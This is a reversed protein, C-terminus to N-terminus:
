AEVTEGTGFKKGVMGPGPLSQFKHYSLLRQSYLREAKYTAWTISSALPPQTDTVAKIFSLMEWKQQPKSITTQRQGIEPNKKKNRQTRHSTMQLTKKIRNSPHNKSVTLRDFDM